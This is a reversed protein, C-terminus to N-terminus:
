FSPPTIVWIATSVEDAANRFRHPISPDFRISDGPNLTFVDDGVTVQVSGSLVVGAEEGRHVFLPEGTDAGPEFSVYIFELDGQLDPVLLQYRIGSCPPILTKRQASRVVRSQGESGGDFLSGVSVGLADAIKKLTGVSPSTRSHEIQSLMSDSIGTAQALDKLSMQRESRIRRITESLDM